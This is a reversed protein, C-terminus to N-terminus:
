ESRLAIVPDVRAARRAPLYCALAAVGCFLLAVAAYTTPDSPSVGYFQSAILRTLTLAVGVGLVIGVLAPRMGQGGMVPVVDGQTRASRLACVQKARGNRWSM